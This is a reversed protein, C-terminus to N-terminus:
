KQFKFHVRQDELFVTYCLFQHCLSQVLGSDWSYLRTYTVIKVKWDMFHPCLYDHSKTLMLHSEM